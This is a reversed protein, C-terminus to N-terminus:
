IVAYYPRKYLVGGKMIVPNPAADQLPTMAAILDVLLGPRCISGSRDAPPFDPRKGSMAPAAGAVAHPGFDQVLQEMERLANDGNANFVGVDGGDGADCRSELVHM